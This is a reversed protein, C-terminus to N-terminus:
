FPKQSQFPTHEVTPNIARLDDSRSPDCLNHFLARPPPFNLLRSYLILTVKGHSQLFFIEKEKKELIYSKPM